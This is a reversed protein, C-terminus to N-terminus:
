KERRLCSGCAIAGMEDQARMSLVDGQKNAPDKSAAIKGKDYMEKWTPVVIGLKEFYFVVNQPKPIVIGYRVANRYTVSDRLLVEPWREVAIRLKDITLSHKYNNCSRCSPLLNEFSHDGFFSLPVAHDVQMQDYQIEAGCYACRGSCKNYIEERQLKTLSKRAM